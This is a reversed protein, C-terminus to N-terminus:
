LAPELPAAHPDGLTESGKWLTRSTLAMKMMISPCWRGKGRTDECHTIDANSQCTVCHTNAHKKKFNDIKIELM